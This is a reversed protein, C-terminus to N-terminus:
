APHSSVLHAYVVINDVYHHISTDYAGGCTILRLGAHDLNGYVRLTPFESKKFREVSDVEFVAVKHDALAVSARDGARLQGLKFFISPGADSDVHGAIVSPGLQGPTPSGTFWGAPTNAKSPPIAIEDHKNLGFKALPADEIGIKPLSLSVPTSRDLIPGVTRAPAPTKRSSDASREPSNSSPAPAALNGEAAPHAASAPPQPAHHQGRVAVVLVVAAAVALVAAVVSMVTRTRRRSRRTPTM